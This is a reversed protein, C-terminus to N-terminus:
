SNGKASTATRAATIAKAYDITDTSAYFGDIVEYFKATAVSFPGSLSCGSMLFIDLCLEVIHIFARLEDYPPLGQPVGQQPHPLADFWSKLM